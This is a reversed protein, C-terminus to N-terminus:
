SYGVAGTFDTNLYVYGVLTEAAYVPLLPPEGQPTGFRSANSFFEQPTARASFETLKSQAIAPSIWALLGCISAAVHVWRSLKAAM